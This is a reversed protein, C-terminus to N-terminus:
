ADIGGLGTLGRDCSYSKDKLIILPRAKVLDFWERNGFLAPVRFRGVADLSDPDVPLRSSSAWDKGM